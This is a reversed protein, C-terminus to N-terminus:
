RGALARTAQGFATRLETYSWTVQFQPFEDVVRQPPNFLIGAEAQALMATDNYSDGAAICQFNLSQLAIIAHRKQDAMRLRYGTVTGDDDVGIVLRGGASNAFAAITRLPKTPSSLDRKLELTKGEVARLHGSEDLEFEGFM